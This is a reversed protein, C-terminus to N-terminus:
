IFLLYIFMYKGEFDNVIKMMRTYLKSWLNSAKLDLADGKTKGQISAYFEPFLMEESDEALLFYAGLAFYLNFLIGKRHNFVVPNQSTSTKNRDLYFELVDFEETGEQVVYYTLDKIRQSAAECTRAGM